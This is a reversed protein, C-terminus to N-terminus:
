PRKLLSAQLKHQDSTFQNSGIRMQGILRTVRDMNDAYVKRQSLLQNQHSQLQHIQRSTEYLRKDAERVVMRRAEDLLHSKRECLNLIYKAAQENTERQSRLEVQLNNLLKHRGPAVQM